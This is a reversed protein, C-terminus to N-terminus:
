LVKKHKKYTMPVGRPCRCVQCNKEDSNDGCGDVGSCVVASSRCLGNDCRFPCFESPQFEVRCKKESEDSMDKCDAIANCFRFEPLCEKTTACQFTGPPCTDRGTCGYEDSGGPCDKHGDCVRSRSICKVGKRVDDRVKGTTNSYFPKLDCQFAQPPCESSEYNCIEDSGDACDKKSDCVFFWSICKGDSECQFTHKPCGTNKASCMSNRSTVCDCIGHSCISNPDALQCQLHAHCPYGLSAPSLLGRYTPLCRSRDSSPTYAIDCTCVSNGELKRHCYANAMSCDADEHCSEGIGLFWLDM